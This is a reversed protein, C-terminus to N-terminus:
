RGGPGPDIGRHQASLRIRCDAYDHSGFTLGYSRCQRDDIAAFERPDGRSMAAPVVVPNIVAPSAGVPSAAVPPAAVPASAVPPTPPAEPGAVCGGRYDGGSCNVPKTCAGLTALSLVLCAAIISPKAQREWQRRRAEYRSAYTVFEAVRNPDTPQRRQQDIMERVIFRAACLMLSRCRDRPGVPRRPSKSRRQGCPSACLSISRHERDRSTGPRV